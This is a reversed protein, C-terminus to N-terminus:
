SRHLHDILSDADDFVPGRPSADADYERILGRVAELRGRLRLLQAVVVGTLLRLFFFQIGNLAAIGTRATIVSDMLDQQLKLLEADLADDEDIAIETQPLREVRALVRSATTLMAANMWIASAMKRLAETHLERLVLRLAGTEHRLIELDPHAFIAPM